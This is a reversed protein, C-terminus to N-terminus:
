ARAVGIEHLARYLGALAALMTAQGWHLTPTKNVVGWRTAAITSIGPAIRCTSSPGTPSKRRGAALEASRSRSYFVLTDIAQASCQIDIPETKHSYYRPTGDELFFTNKWYDYGTAITKEFRSDGTADSYHKFCDLVYGTHFNDIWRLNSAEGYYWSGDPRQYKATYLFAREALERYTENGTRSYTRILLSAGLTSANHVQHEWGPFYGLCAADGEVHRSIDRLIHEVPASPLRCIATRSSIIM